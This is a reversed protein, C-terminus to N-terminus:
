YAEIRIINACLDNKTIDIVCYSKGKGSKDYSISGPNVIYTGNYYDEKPAHTHGYLIIDYKKQEALSKLSDLSFKVNRTHGHLIFFKKGGLEYEKESDNKNASFDCNGCVYLVPINPFKEQLYKADHVLDGLHIIYDLINNNGNSNSNKSIFERTINIMRDCHDHSDSFVLIKM